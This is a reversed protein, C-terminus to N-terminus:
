RIQEESEDLHEKYVSNSIIVEGDRLTRYKIGNKKFNIIVDNMLESSRHQSQYHPVICYDLINLGNFLISDDNYPNSGKEAKEYGDLTPSLVCVGASYGAYLYKNDYKIKEILEDFGSLQMAMRLSFVNGGVAYFAYFENKKIFKELDNEKDFFNKLDLITVNFGLEELSKIDFDIFAKEKQTKPRSDRANPILLIKNNNEKIWNKLYNSNNGLKFSSLYLKM